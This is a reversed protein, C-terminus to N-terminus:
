SMMWTVLIPNSYTTKIGCYELPNKLFVLIVWNNIMRSERSYKQRQVRKQAKLADSIYRQDESRM